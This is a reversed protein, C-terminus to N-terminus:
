LKEARNRRRYNPWKCAHELEFCDLCVLSSGNLGCVYLARDHEDHTCGCTACRGFRQYPAQRWRAVVHRELTSSM